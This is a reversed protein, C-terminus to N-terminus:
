AIARQLDERPGEGSSEESRIADLVRRADDLSAVRAMGPAKVSCSEDADPRPDAKFQRNGTYPMWHAELWAPDLRIADADAASDTPHVLSM